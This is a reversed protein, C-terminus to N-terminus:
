PKITRHSKRWNGGEPAAKKHLDYVQLAHLNNFFATLIGDCIGLFIQLNSIVFAIYTTLLNVLCGNQRIIHTNISLFSGM